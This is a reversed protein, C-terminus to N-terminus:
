SLHAFVNSICCISVSTSVNAQVFMKGSPMLYAHAYSNLGSTTGMFQMVQPDDDRPPWFEFTPEAAGKSYLPDVNPYNRNIYGGNVFGGILVVSGDGLAEIGPYWRKKALNLTLDDKWECTQGAPCPNLLRVATAGDNDGYTPDYGCAGGNPNCSPGVAKNGGFTAWSGNPMHMGAACFTNTMQPMLTVKNTSLTRNFFPQIFARHPHELVYWEAAWAPHGDIQAANNEVKDLIYVKDENGVM